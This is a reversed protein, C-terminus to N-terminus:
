TLQGQLSMAVQMMKAFNSLRVLLALPDFVEEGLAHNELWAKGTAAFPYPTAYRL